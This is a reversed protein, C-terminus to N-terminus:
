GPEAAALSTLHRPTVDAARRHSLYVSYPSVRSHALWPPMCLLGARIIQNENVAENIMDVTLPPSARKGPSLLLSDDHVSLIFPPWPEEIVARPYDNYRM